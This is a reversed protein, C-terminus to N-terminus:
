SQNLKRSPTKGLAAFWKMDTYFSTNLEQGDGNLFCASAFDTTAQSYGFAVCGPTMECRVACGLRSLNNYQVAPVTKGSYYQDIMNFHLTHHENESFACYPKILRWNCLVLSRCCGGNSPM